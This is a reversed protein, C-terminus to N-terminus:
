KLATRILEQTSAEPGLKTMAQRVAKDAVELKYGLTMLAAVADQIVSNTGSGATQANGAASATTPALSSSVAVSALKDKLEICIREATKKGIGPCKSLLAVDNRAIADALIQLSLKSLITIASKPGIGPVKEILLLFLEREEKDAFGYLAQSDERYIVTTHLLVKAGIGPLKEATTVPIHVLYGLGNCDIVAHLPTAERVIGELHVIM